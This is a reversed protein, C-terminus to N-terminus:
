YGVGEGGPWALAHICYLSRRETYDASLVSTKRIPSVIVIQVAIRIADRKMGGWTLPRHLVQVRADKHNPPKDVVKAIPRPGVGM